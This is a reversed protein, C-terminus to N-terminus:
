GEGRPMLAEDGGKSLSLEQRGGERVYRYSLEEGEGYRGSRGAEERLYRPMEEERQDERLYRPTEEERRYNHDIAANTSDSVSLTLTKGEKKILKGQEEGGFENDNWLM